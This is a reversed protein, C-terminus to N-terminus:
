QVITLYPIALVVAAGNENTWLGGGPPIFGLTFLTRQEQSDLSYTAVVRPGAPTSLQFVRRRLLDMSFQPAQTPVSVLGATPLSVPFNRNGDTLYTLGSDHRAEAPESACNQANTFGQADFDVWSWCQGGVKLFARSPTVFVPPFLAQGIQGSAGWTNSRPQDRDYIAMVGDYLTLISTNPSGPVTSIAYVSAGDPLAWSLDVQRTVTNYRQVSAKATNGTVDNLVKYLYTGDDSLALATVGTGAGALSELIEGQRMDLTVLDLDSTQANSSRAAVLYLKQSAVDAVAVAASLNRAFIVPVTASIMGNLSVYLSHQGVRTMDGAPPTINMATASTVEVLIEAGDWFARLGASFSAGSVTLKPGAAAASGLIVLVQGSLRPAQAGSAPQVTFLGVPSTGGGPPPNSFTIQAVLPQAMEPPELLIEFHGLRGRDTVFKAQRVDGNWRLVSQATLNGGSVV